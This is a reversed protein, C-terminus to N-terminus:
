KIGEMKREKGCCNGKRWRGKREAVKEKQGDIKGKLLKKERWRDKKGAVIKGKRWGDKRGDTKAEVGIERKNEREDRKVKEDM